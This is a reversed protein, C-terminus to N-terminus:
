SALVALAKKESLILLEQNTVDREFGLQSYFGVSRNKPLVKVTGNMGKDVGYRIILEILSRGAGKVAPRENLPIINNPATALRRIYAFEGYDLNIVGAAQLNGDCDCLGILQDGAEKGIGLAHEYILKWVISVDYLRLIASQRASLIKGQKSNYAVTGIEAAFREVLEGAIIRMENIEESSPITPAFRTDNLRISEM